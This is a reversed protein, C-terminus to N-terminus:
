IFNVHSLAPLLNTLLYVNATEFHSGSTFQIETIKNMHTSHDNQIKRFEFTLIHMGKPWTSLLTALSAQQWAHHGLNLRKSPGVHQSSNVRGPQGRVEEHACPGYTLVYAFTPPPSSLLACEWPLWISLHPRKPLRYLEITVNKHNFNLSRM